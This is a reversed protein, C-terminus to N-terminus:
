ALKQTAEIIIEAASWGLSERTYQGREAMCNGTLASMISPNNKLYLIKDAITPLADAEFQFGCQREELFQGAECLPTVICPLALGLYEWVKVPFANKSIDDDLRLCLGIHCRAIEEVTRDFPLKGMYTFNKMTCQAALPAQRGYGIVLVDIDHPELMAALEIIGRVNQFYGMVGHFCVTFRPRKTPAIDAFHAPFGNYVCRVDAAPADALVQTRLGKTAAITVVAHSYMSRSARTLLRYATSKKALLGSEAYVQPYIDRLEIAYPLRRLRACSSLILATLYAPTSIVLLDFDNRRFLRIATALGMKIEGAIRGILGGANEVDPVKVQVIDTGPAAQAGPTPTFLTVSVDWGRRDSLLGSIISAARLSGAGPFPPLHQFFLCIKM